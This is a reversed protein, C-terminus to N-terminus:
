LGIEPWSLAVEDELLALIRSLSASSVYWQQLITKTHPNDRKRPTKPSDGEAAERADNALTELNDLSM